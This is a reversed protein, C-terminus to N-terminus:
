RLRVVEMGAPVWGRFLAQDVAQNLKLEENDLVLLRSEQDKVKLYLPYRSALAPQLRGYELELGWRGEGELLWAREVAFDKLSFILEQAVRGSLDVLKLMAQGSLSTVAVEDRSDAPLLPPSGALVAYMETPSLALGLFRALNTRSAPGQYAKNERFSLVTLTVGDCIVRLLPQGFPGMVEARLRNPFAGLIVHDGHLEGQPAVLEIAGSMIFSKVALRRAEMRTRVETATPLSGLAPPGSMHVCSALALSAAVLM